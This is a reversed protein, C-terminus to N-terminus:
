LANKILMKKKMQEDNFRKKLAEDQVNKIKQQQDFYSKKIQKKSIQEEENVIEDKAILPEDKLIKEQMTIYYQSYKSYM